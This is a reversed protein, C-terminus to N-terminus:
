LKIIYSNILRRAKKATSNDFFTYDLLAGNCVGKVLAATSTKAFRPTAMQLLSRSGLAVIATPLIFYTSDIIKQANFYASAPSSLDGHKDAYVLAPTVTAGIGVARALTARAMKQASQRLFDM